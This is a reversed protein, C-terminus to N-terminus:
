MSGMQTIHRLSVHVNEQMVKDSKEVYVFPTTEFPIKHKRLGFFM